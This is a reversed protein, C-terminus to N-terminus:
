SQITRRQNSSADTDHKREGRGIGDPLPFFPNGAHLEAPGGLGLRDHHLVAEVFVDAPQDRQARQEFGGVLVDGATLELGEASSQELSMRAHKTDGPERPDVALLARFVLGCRNGVANGAIPDLREAGVARDRHRRLEIFIKRHQKGGLRLGRRNVPDVIAAIGLPARRQFARTVVVHDRHQTSSKVFGLIADPRDGSMVSFAENFDDPARVGIAEVEVGIAQAAKASAEYRLTMGLDDRNWLMAVKKLKPSLEKLLSLRKTTLLAAVDSIGTINGGPHAQSAILGTAVPDGLGFAAVTPLGVAKAAVACPYGIIVVADVAHVKMDQLLGPLKTVDGMVGYAELTLNQGLVYGREALAKLLIKGNPSDASIPGVPTLTGLHYTRGSEAQALGPGVLAAGGLAALFERRKM